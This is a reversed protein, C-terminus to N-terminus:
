KLNPKMKIHTISRKYSSRKFFDELVDLPIFNKIDDFPKNDQNSIDLGLVIHLDKDSVFIVVCYAM